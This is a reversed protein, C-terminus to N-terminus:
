QSNTAIESTLIFSAASRATAMAASGMDACPSTAPCIGCARAMRAHAPAPGYQGVIVSATCAFVAQTAQLSRDRTTRSLRGCPRLVADTDRSPCTSATVVPNPETHSEVAARGEVADRRPRSADRLSDLDARGRGVVDPDAGPRHPHGVVLSGRNEAHRRGGAPEGPDRDAVPRCVHDESARPGPDQRV